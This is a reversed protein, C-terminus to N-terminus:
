KTIAIYVSTENFAILNIEYFSSSSMSIRLIIATRKHNQESTEVVYLKFCIGTKFIDGSHWSEFLLKFM